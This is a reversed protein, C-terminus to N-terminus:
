RCAKSDKSEKVATEQLKQVVDNASKLEQTTSALEEEVDTIKKELEQCKNVIAEHEDDTVLSRQNGLITELEHTVSRCKKSVITTSTCNWFFQQHLYNKSEKLSKNLDTIELEKSFLQERFATEVVALEKDFELKANVNSGENKSSNTTYDQLSATLESNENRLKEITDRAGNLGKV